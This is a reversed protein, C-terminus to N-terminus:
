QGEVVRRVRLVTADGAPGAKPITDLTAEVKLGVNGHTAEMVMNRKEDSLNLAAMDVSDHIQQYSASTRGLPYTNASNAAQFEYGAPTVAYKVPAQAAATAVLFVPALAGLLRHSQM